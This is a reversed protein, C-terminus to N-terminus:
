AATFVATLSNVGASAQQGDFKRVCRTPLATALPGSVPAISKVHAAYNV